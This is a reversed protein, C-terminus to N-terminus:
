DNLGVVTIGRRNAETRANAFVRDLADDGLLDFKIRFQETEGSVLSGAVDQPDRVLWHYEGIDPSHVVVFVKKM